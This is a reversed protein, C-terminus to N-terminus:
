NFACVCYVDERVEELPYLTHYNAMRLPLTGCGTWGSLEVELPDSPWQLIFACAVTLFLACLTGCGTWGSLEVELPDSPCQLIFACAVTLFLVSHAAGM